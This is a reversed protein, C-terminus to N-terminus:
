ACGVDLVQVNFQPHTQSMRHGSTRESGHRAMTTPSTTSVEKVVLLILIARTSDV